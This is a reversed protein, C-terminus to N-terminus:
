SPIRTPRRDERFTCCICWALLSLSLAWRLATHGENWFPGGSTWPGLVLYVAAPVVSLLGIWKWGYDRRKPTLGGCLACGLAVCVVALALYLGQAWAGVALTNAEWLNLMDLGFDHEFREVWWWYLATLLGYAGIAFTAPAASELLESRPRFVSVYALSAAVVFAGYALGDIWFLASPGEYVHDFAGVWAWMDLLALIAMNFCATARAREGVVFRLGYAAALCVGAAILYFVVHGAIRGVTYQIIAWLVLSAVFLIPTLLLRRPDNRPSSIDEWVVKPEGYEDCLESPLETSDIRFVHFYGDPEGHRRWKKLAREFEFTVWGPESARVSWYLHFEDSLAIAESLSRKINDGRKVSFPAFFWRNGSSDISVFKEGIATVTKRRWLPLGIRAEVLRADESKYSVFKTVVGGREIVDRIVDGYHGVVRIGQVSAVEAQRRHRREGSPRM